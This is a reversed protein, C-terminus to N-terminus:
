TSARLSEFKQKFAECLVITLLSGDPFDIAPHKGCIRAGQGVEPASTLKSLFVRLVLHLFFVMHVTTM